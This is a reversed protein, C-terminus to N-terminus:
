ILSLIIPITIMSAITSFAVIRSALASNGNYREAFIATNAAAPMAATTVCTGLLMTDTIGLIKMAILVLLPLIILRIATVYYLALGSFLKKFDMNAILAGIILMSLPTTMTGFMELTKAVPYPLKISFIFIFLGIFVAIIGPNILAKKMSKIDRKGTLEVLTGLRIDKMEDLFSAYSGMYSTKDKVTKYLLSCLLYSLVCYFNHVRIKQDTWHFQPNLSLHNPDKMNKFANEIYSQGHYAEIIEETSWDHRNTMLIRFGMEEEIIALESYNINYYIKIEGNTEEGVTADIIRSTGYKSLLTDVKKEIQEKTLRSRKSEISKNIEIINSECKSISAYIGKIQGQKLKDSVLVVLTMDHGWINRRARFAEIPKNRVAIWNLNNYAEEILDKHHYPTLAGVYHLGLENIILNLNKKSNNGRDFVITHKDQQLGLSILRDRIKSIVTKFVKSDNMNGEYSHHFIPIMNQRTVVLALGVQRLDNRKQKNKGRQAIDCVTNSTNIFTYYNTTDFFLTESKIDYKTMVNELIKEEMVPIKEEPICDMMDWFHQSDVKSFNLRLMYELSTTKAWSSWKRKSSTTCGREIAALMMTAGVTLNNRIPKEAM